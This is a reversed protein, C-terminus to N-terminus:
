DERNKISLVFLFQLVLMTRRINMSLPAEPPPNMCTVRNLNKEPLPWGALLM